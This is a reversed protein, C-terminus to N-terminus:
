TIDVWYPKTRTRQLAGLMRATPSRALREQQMSRNGESILLDAPGFFSVIGRVKYRAPELFSPTGHGNALGVLLALHGGASRGAMVVARGDVGYEGGRDHLFNLADNIDQAPAPFQAEGSLRYGVSAIAYGEQLLASYLQPNSRPLDDKSGRSWGGGHVWVVLPRQGPAGVSPLHLSLQLDGIAATKYTIERPAAPAQAGVPQLSAAALLGALIFAKITM